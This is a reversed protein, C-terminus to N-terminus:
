FKHKKPPTSQVEPTENETKCIGISNITNETKVPLHKFLIWVAKQLVLNGILASGGSEIIRVNILYDLFEEFKWILYENEEKWCDTV